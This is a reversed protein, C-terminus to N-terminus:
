AQVRDRLSTGHHFDSLKDSHVSLSVATMLFSGKAVDLGVLCVYILLPTAAMASARGFADQM